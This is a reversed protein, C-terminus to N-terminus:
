KHAVNPCLYDWNAEFPEAQVNALGSVNIQYDIFQKLGPPNQRDLVQELARLAEKKDSTLGPVQLLENIQPLAFSLIARAKLLDEPFGTGNAYMYALYSLAIARLGPKKEGGEMSAKCMLARAEQHTLWGDERVSMDDQVAKVADVAKEYDSNIAHSYKGLVFLAWKIDPVKLGRDPDGIRAIAEEEQTAMMSEPLGRLLQGAVIKAREKEGSTMHHDVDCYEAWPDLADAGGDVNWHWGKSGQISGKQPPCKPEESAPLLNAPSLQSANLQMELSKWAQYAALWIGGSTVKEAEIACASTRGLEILGAPGLAALRQKYEGYADQKYEEGREDIESRVSEFRLKLQKIQTQWQFWSAKTIAGGQLEKPDDARCYALAAWFYGEIVVKRGPNPDLKKGKENLPWSCAARTLLARLDGGLARRDIVSQQLLNYQPYCWTEGSEAASARTALASILGIFLVAIWVFQRRM